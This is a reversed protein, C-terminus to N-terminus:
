SRSSRRLQSVLDELAALRALLDKLSPEQVSAAAYGPTSPSTAPAKQKIVRAPIGVAVSDAPIDSTVVANAGIISGSGVTVPGLVRAGAGILVDDGLRPQSSGDAARKGAVGGLTAGQMIYARSGIRTKDGIVIGIPHPMRLGGGIQAEIGIDAGCSLLLRRHCWWAMLLSGRRRALTSLRFLLAARLPMSTIAKRLLRRWPPSQHVGFIFRFDAQLEERFQAWAHQPVREFARCEQTTRGSEPSSTM